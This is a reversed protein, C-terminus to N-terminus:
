PHPQPPGPTGTLQVQYANTIEGAQRNEVGTVKVSDGTVFDAIAGKAGNPLLIVTQPTIDVLLTRSGFQVTLTDSQEGVTNILGEQPKFTHLDHDRLIGAAYVLAREPDPRATAFIRDGPRFDQLRVPVSREMRYSVSPGILLTVINGGKLRVLMEKGYTHVNLKLFTGSVTLHIKRASAPCTRAKLILPALPHQSINLSTIISPATRDRATLSPLSFDDEIFRLISDFELVHHDVYHPRAFASIMVTPVRPGLSIYDRVPPAVHDYFGGFDDWTLIILTNKWYKKSRAVANIQDVSWNEGVCMSYPPHESQEESTVLWSVAPLRGTKVDTKFSTEPVVNTKWLNSYRIHRIADFSSWVYGSKYLGPAYYKWSVHAKGMTDALTPIDFCPKTLYHGGTAPDIADVVSYPGGDCGWAHHTQGRPNDITNASSAAITVLHNPFSPGLITAFFHDDVTFHRAYRWYNPIDSARYQSDAINRGDQLAGALDGFRDMHGQDVAFAAAAGAHALDLLTHDPTHVLDVVKGSSTIAETTGDVGPLRGFINDFSHNEKEIIVVHTIPYRARHSEGHPGRLQAAAPHGM